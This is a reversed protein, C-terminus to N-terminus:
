RSLKSGTYGAPEDRARLRDAALQLDEPTNVNLFGSPDEFNVARYGMKDLWTEVRRGGKALYSELSQEGRRHLLVCAFHTQEGSRAVLASDRRTAAASLRPGFAEPLLPLDCPAVLLWPRTTHRWAAAIGALPGVEGPRDTVVPLGLARYEDLNRNASVMVEACTAALRKAVHQALPLGAVRLLGKDAGGMRRAQGGALVVGVIRATAIGSQRRSSPM